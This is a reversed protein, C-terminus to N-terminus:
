RIVGALNIHIEEGNVVAYANPWKGQRLAVSILELFVALEEISKGQVKFSSDTIM